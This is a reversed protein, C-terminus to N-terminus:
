YLEIRVESSDDLIYTTEPGSGLHAPFIYYTGSRVTLLRLGEYRYHYPSGAPMPYAKVHSGALALPQTSYVTIDPMTGFGQAIRHAEQTGQSQAYLAGAWLACVAAVVLALAYAFHGNDFSRYPWTFLLPGIGFAALYVYSDNTWRIDGFFLIIFVVTVVLGFMVLPNKTTTTTNEGAGEENKENDDHQTVKDNALAARRRAALAPGASVIIAVIAVVVLIQSFLNLSYLMYEVISVNLDLPNLHFYAYEATEYAWGMYVLAAVLLSANAAILRAIRKPSPSKSPKPRKTASRM